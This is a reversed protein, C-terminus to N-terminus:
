EHKKVEFDYNKLMRLDSEITTGTTTLMDGTIIANAGAKFARNGEDKLRGRGGALRLQAKPLIFRYVAVIRALTDTDLLPENELPTGEIPHLINIPVSVINLHRLSLAMDIRDEVTEGTGFIGGSCVSLGVAQADRIARIKDAFTHTTCLAPFHRESTELNNHIRTVGAEKLKRFQTKTLLGGSVCVFLATEQRLRAVIECIKEVEADDLCKGATVLAFRSIGRESYNRVEELVAEAEVLPYSEVGTTHHASQACFACNESCGGSKANMITCLEAEPGCCTKRIEDAAQTLAELAVEHYLWLAEERGIEEGACVQAKLSELDFAM